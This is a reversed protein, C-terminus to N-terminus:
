FFWLGPPTFTCCFIIFISLGLNYFGNLFEIILIKGYWFSIWNVLWTTADNIEILDLSCFFFLTENLNFFPRDIGFIVVDTM